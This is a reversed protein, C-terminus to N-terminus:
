SRNTQWYDVPRARMNPMKGFDPDTAPTGFMDREIGDDVTPALADGTVDEFSEGTETNVRARTGVYGKGACADCKATEQNPVSSGTRVKGLGRCDDCTHETSSPAYNSVDPLGIAIRVRASVDETPATDWRFGPALNWCLECAVLNTFDPGIIEEVRNGHRIAEKELSKSAKEVDGTRAARADSEQAEDDEDDDTEIIEGTEPDVEVAEGDPGMAEIIEAEVQDETETANM